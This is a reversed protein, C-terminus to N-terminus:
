IYNFIIFILMSTQTPAPLSLPLPAIDFNQLRDLTQKVLDTLTQTGSFRFIKQTDFIYIISFCNIYECFFLKSVNKEPVLSSLHKEIQRFSSNFDQFQQM